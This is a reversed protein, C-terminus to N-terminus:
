NQPEEMTKDDQTQTESELGLNINQIPHQAFEQYIEHLEGKNWTNIKTPASDVVNGIEGCIPITTADPIVSSTHSSIHNHEQDDSESKDSKDFLLYENRIVNQDINIFIIKKSILEKIFNTWSREFNDYKKRDVNPIYKCSLRKWSVCLPDSYSIPLSLIARISAKINFCLNKLAIEELEQM